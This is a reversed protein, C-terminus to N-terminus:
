DPGTEGTESKRNQSTDKTITWAEAKMDNACIRHLLDHERVARLALM